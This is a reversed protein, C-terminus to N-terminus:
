FEGLRAASKLFLGTRLVDKRGECLGGPLYHRFGSLRLAGNERKTLGKLEIRRRGVTRGLRVPGNAARAAKSIIKPFITLTTEYQKSAYDDELNKAQRRLYMKQKEIEDILIKKGTTM